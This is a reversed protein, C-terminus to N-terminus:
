IKRETDEVILAHESEISISLMGGRDWLVFFVSISIVAFTAVSLKTTIVETSFHV